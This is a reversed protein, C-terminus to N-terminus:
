ITSERAVCLYLLLTSTYCSVKRRSLVKRFASVNNSSKLEEKWLVHDKDDELDAFTTQPVKGCPLESSHPPPPTISPEHARTKRTSWAPRRSPIKNISKTYKRKWNKSSQLKIDISWAGPRNSSSMIYEECNVVKLGFTKVSTAGLPTLTPSMVAM